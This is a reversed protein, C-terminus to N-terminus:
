KRLKEPKELNMYDLLYKCRYKMPLSSSFLVYKLYKKLILYLYAYQEYYEARCNLPIVHILMNVKQLYFDFAYKEVEPYHERMFQYNYRWAEEEDMRSLSFPKTMISEERIRYFYLPDPIQVIREAQDLQLYTTFADECIKGKPFRMTKWCKAKYLKNWAAVPFTNDKYLKKYFLPAKGACAEPKLEDERAEGEFYSTIGCCCIDANKDHIAQLMKELMDPAICDDSDIFSIYDGTVVALGANRADSLGGNKKHIVKIRQDKVAYADCIEPCKDTSGDDILLIELDRYSQHLVSELCTSLYTEVNYVPIIVSIREEM